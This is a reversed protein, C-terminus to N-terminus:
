DRRKLLVTNYLMIMQATVRTTHQTGKRHDIDQYVPSSRSTQRFIM